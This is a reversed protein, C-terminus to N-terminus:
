PPAAERTGSLRRLEQGFRDDLQDPPCKSPIGAACLFAFVDAVKQAHGEPVNIWAHYEAIDM